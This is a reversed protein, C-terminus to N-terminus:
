ARRGNQHVALDRIRGAVRPRDNAQGRRVVAPGIPVWRQADGTPFGKPLVSKPAVAAAKRYAAAAAEVAAQDFSGRRGAVFSERELARGRKAEKGPRSM